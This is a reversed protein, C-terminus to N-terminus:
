TSESPYRLEGVMGSGWFHFSVQELHTFPGVAVPRPTSFFQALADEGPFRTGANDPGGITVLAHQIEPKDHQVPLRQLEADFDSVTWSTAMGFGCEFGLANAFPTELAAAWGEAHPAVHVGASGDAVEQLMLAAPLQAPFGSEPIGAMVAAIAARDIEYAELLAALQDVTQQDNKKPPLGGGGSFWIQVWCDAINSCDRQEAMLKDRLRLFLAHGKRRDEFPLVMCDLRKWGDPTEIEFDPPNAGVRVGDFPIRGLRMAYDSRFRELHLRELTPKDLTVGPGFVRLSNEFALIVGPEGGTNEIGLWMAGLGSMPSVTPSDGVGTM